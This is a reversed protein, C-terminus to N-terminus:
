TGESQSITPINPQSPRSSGRSGKDAFVECPLWFGLQALLGATSPLLGHPDATHTPTHPLPHLPLQEHVHPTSLSLKAERVGEM